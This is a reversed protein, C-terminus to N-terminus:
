GAPKLTYDKIAVGRSGQQSEFNLINQGKVLTLEIPKTQQWMGITYALRL